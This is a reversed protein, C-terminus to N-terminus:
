LDRNDDKIRSNRREIGLKRAIWEEAWGVGKICFASLACCIVTRWIEIDLGLAWLAAPTGVLSVFVGTYVFLRLAAGRYGFHQGYLYAAISAPVILPLAREIYLVSALLMRGLAALIQAWMDVDGPEPAVPPSM